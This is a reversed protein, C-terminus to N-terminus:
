PVTSKIAASVAAATVAAAIDSGGDTKYGKLTATGDPTISVEPIDMRQLFSTRKLSWHETTLQTSTCGTALIFVIVLTRKM